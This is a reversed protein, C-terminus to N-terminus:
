TVKENQFLAASLEETSIITHQFKYDRFYQMLGKLNRICLNYDKVYYTHRYSIESQFASNMSSEVIIRKPYPSIKIPSGPKGYYLSVNKSMEILGLYILVYPNLLAHIILNKDIVVEKGSSDLAYIDNGILHSVKLLINFGIITVYDDVDFKSDTIEEM